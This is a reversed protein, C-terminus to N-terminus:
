DRENIRKWKEVYLYLESGNPYNLWFKSVFHCSLLEYQLPINMKENTGYHSVKNQKESYTKMIYVWLTNTM